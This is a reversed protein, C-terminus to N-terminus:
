VIEVYVLFSGYFYVIKSIFINLANKEKTKLTKLIM